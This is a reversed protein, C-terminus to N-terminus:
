AKAKSQKNRMMIKISDMGIALLLVLGKVVMQHYESLNIMTMGNNLFGIAVIGILGGLIGGEGGSASVGGLVLGCIVDFEFDTGTAPQGSNVRSLWVIAAIGTFFGTLSYALVRILKTNVGSLKTAEENGGLYYFYRGLYTRNLFIGTIVVLILMLIVPIPVGFVYGQGLVKFSEPLGYIPQSNTIIFSLGQLVFKMCLTTIFPMLNFKSILFGNVTGLATAILVGLICAVVPHMGWTVMMTACVINIFKVMAGLSLDIGGTLLVTIMGCGAIGIMSVQRLVNMINQGTLFQPSLFSFLVVIGILLITIAVVSSTKVKQIITKGNM